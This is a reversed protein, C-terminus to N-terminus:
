EALGHKGMIHAGNFAEVVRVPEQLCLSCGVHLVIIAAFFSLELYGNLNLFARLRQYSAQLNFPVGGHGVVNDAVQDRRGFPLWIGVSIDRSVLSLHRIVVEIM